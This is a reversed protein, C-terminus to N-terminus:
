RRVSATPGEGHLAGHYGEVALRDDPDKALCTKVIGELVPPSMLELSHEPSPGKRLM